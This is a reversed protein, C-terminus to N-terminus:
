GDSGWEMELPFIKFYGALLELSLSQLVTKKEISINILSLFVIIAFTKYFFYLVGDGFVVVKSLPRQM